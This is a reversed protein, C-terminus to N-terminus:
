ERGLVNVLNLTKGLQQEAQIARAEDTLEGSEFALARLEISSERARLYDRIAAQMRAPLSDDQPLPNRQDAAAAVATRWPELVERRLRQAIELRNVRANPPFTLIDTQRRVIEAEARHSPERLRREIAFAPASGAQSGPSRRRGDVCSSATRHRDTEATRAVRPLQPLRGIPLMWSNVSQLLRRCAEGSEATLPQALWALPIVIVLVALLLKAPQPVARAEPTFPRALIM